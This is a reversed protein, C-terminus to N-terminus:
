VLRRVFRPHRRVGSPDRGLLRTPSGASACKDSVSFVYHAFEHVVFFPKRREDGMLVTHLDPTGLGPIPRSRVKRSSITWTGHSQEREFHAFYTPRDAGSVSGNIQGSHRPSVRIM